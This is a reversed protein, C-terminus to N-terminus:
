IHSLSVDRRIITMMDTVIYMMFIIEMTMLSKFGQVWATGQGAVLPPGTAAQPSVLRAPYNNRIIFFMAVALVEGTM